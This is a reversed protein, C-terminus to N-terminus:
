YVRCKHKFTTRATMDLEVIGFHNANEFRDDGEEEWRVGVDYNCEAIDSGDTMARHKIQLVLSPHSFIHRNM